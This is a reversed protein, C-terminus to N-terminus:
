ILPGHSYMHGPHGVSEGPSDYLRYEEISCDSINVTVTVTPTKPQNVRIIVCFWFYKIYLVKQIM